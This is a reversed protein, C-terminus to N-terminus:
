KDFFDIRRGFDINRASERFLRVRTRKLVATALNKSRAPGSFDM